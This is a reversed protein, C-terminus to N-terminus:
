ETKLSSGVSVEDSGISATVVVDVVEKSCDCRLESGRNHM